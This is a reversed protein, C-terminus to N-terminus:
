NSQRVFSSFLVNHDVTDFATSLDLIVLIVPKGRDTSMMIYNKVRVLATETSHGGKYASQLSENIQIWYLTEKDISKYRRYSIVKASVNNRYLYMLRLM